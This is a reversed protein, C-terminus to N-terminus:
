DRRVTPPSPAKLRYYAVGLALMLLLSILYCLSAKTGVPWDYGNTSANAYMLLWAYVLSLLIILGAAIRLLAGNRRVAPVLSLTLTLGAALGACWRTMQPILTDSSPTTSAEPTGSLIISIIILLGCLLLPLGALVKGRRRLIPLISLLIGTLLLIIISVTMTIGSTETLAPSFQPTPAYSTMMGGFGIVYVCLAASVALLGGLQPRIDRNHPLLIVLSLSTALAIVLFDLGKGWWWLIGCGLAVLASLFVAPLRVNDRSTSQLLYGLTILIILSITMQGMMIMTGSLAGDWYDQKMWPFVFYSLGPLCSAAAPWACWAGCRGLQLLAPEPTWRAGCAPLLGLWFYAGIGAAAMMTTATFLGASLATKLQWYPTGLLTPTDSLPTADLVRTQLANLLILTLVLIGLFIRHKM